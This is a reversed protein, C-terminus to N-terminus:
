ASRFYHLCNCAGCLLSSACRQEALQLIPFLVNRWTEAGAGTEAASAAFDGDVQQQQPGRRSTVTTDACLQKLRGSILLSHCSDVLATPPLLTTDSTGHAADGQPKLLVTLLGALDLDPPSRQLGQPSGVPNGLVFLGNNLWEVIHRWSSLVSVSVSPVGFAPDLWAAVTRVFAEVHVINGAAVAPLPPLELLSCRHESATAILLDCAAILQNQMSTHWRTATDPPTSPGTLCMLTRISAHCRIPASFSVM